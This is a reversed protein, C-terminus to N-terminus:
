CAVRWAERCAEWLAGETSWGDSIPGGTAAPMHASDVALPEHSPDTDRCTLTHVAFDVNDALGQPAIGLPHDEGSLEGRM